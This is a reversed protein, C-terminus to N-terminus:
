PQLLPLTLQDPKLALEAARILNLQAQPNEAFNSIARSQVITVAGQGIRVPYVAPELEPKPGHPRQIWVVAVGSKALLAIKGARYEPSQEAASGPAILALKGSFNEIGRDELDEMEISLAKLTIKIRNQPDFVGLPKDGALPNLAKLLNTPYVMIQTNGLVKNQGDVWQVLFHTEGQVSPFTLLNCELVTQGPLVQLKKWFAPKGLPIATTSSLQYLQTSLSVEAIRDNPNYFSARVSRAEGSFVTQSQENALLQIQGWGALPLLLCPLLALLTKLVCPQLALRRTM